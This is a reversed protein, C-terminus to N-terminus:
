HSHLWDTLAQLASARAQRGRHGALALHRAAAPMPAANLADLAPDVTAARLPLRRSDATHPAQVVCSDGGEGGDPDNFSSGEPRDESLPSDDAQAVERGDEPQGWAGPEADRAFGAIATNSSPRRAHGHREWSTDTGYPM